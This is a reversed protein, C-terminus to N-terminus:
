PLDRMCRRLRVLARAWLHKVSDLSRGMRQAVDPFSLGQFHCLFIVERYHHPLKELADALLARQERRNAEDSPSNGQSVLGGDLLRSSQDLEFAVERELRLDRRQTGRYRRILDVLNSALIQRLWSVLEAETKGKFQPFDRQAELFADQVVDSAGVKGQLREGIQLRALTALYNRYLELLQGLADADGARAQGLLQEPIPDPGGNM